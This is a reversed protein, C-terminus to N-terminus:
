VSVGPTRASLYCCNPEQWPVAAVLLLTLLLACGIGRWVQARAIFQYLPKTCTHEVREPGVAYGLYTAHRRITFTSWTPAAAQLQTQVEDM